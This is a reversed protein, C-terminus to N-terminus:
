KITDDAIGKSVGNKVAIKNDLLSSFFSNDYQIPNHDCWIGFALYWIGFGDDFWLEKM